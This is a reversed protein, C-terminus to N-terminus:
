NWKIPTRKGYKRRKIEEYIPPSNTKQIIAIIKSLHPWANLDFSWLKHCGFLQKCLIACWIVFIIPINYALSLDNQCKIKIDYVVFDIAILYLSQPKLSQQSSVSQRKVILSLISLRRAVLIYCRQLFRTDSFHIQVNILSLRLNLLAQATKSHHHTAFLNCQITNAHVSRSSM